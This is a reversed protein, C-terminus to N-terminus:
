KSFRLDEEEQVLHSKTRLRRAVSVPDQNLRREFAKVRELLDQASLHCRHYTGDERLWRWLAEVPMFDPSYAPLRLLEIGLEEARACVAQLWGPQILSARPNELM